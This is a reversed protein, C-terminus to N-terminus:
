ELAMMGRNHMLRPARRALMWVIAGEDAVKGIALLIVNDCCHCYCYYGKMVVINNGKSSSKMLGQVEITSQGGLV